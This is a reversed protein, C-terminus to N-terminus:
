IEEMYHDKYGYGFVDSAGSVILFAKEDEERVIARIKAYVNPKAVIMVVKKSEGTYAGEGHLYTVGVDVEKMVRAAVTEAKDTVIYLLNAGDNKYLFMDLVSNTVIIAAVAYLGLQVNKFAIMSLLVVGTDFVMFMKGTKLQPVKQRIAKVLVDIGGTTAGKQFIFAMGLGLLAGGTVGSILLDTTLLGIKPIVYSTIGNMMLSSVTTVYLTSVMFKWGFKWLGFIMIPINILYIITGTRFGTWSSIIISLGTVGGPALNYPDLFMAIGVSYIVCGVTLMLFKLIVKGVTSKM